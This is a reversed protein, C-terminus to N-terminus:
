KLLCPLYGTRCVCCKKLYIGRRNYIRNSSLIYLNWCKTHIPNQCVNCQYTTQSEYNIKDLCIVCDTHDVNKVLDPVVLEPIYQYVFFQISRISWFPVYTTKFYCFGFWKIHDCYKPTKFFFLFSNSQKFDPCNCKVIIKKSNSYNITIVNINNYCSYFSNIGNTFNGQNENTFNGQNENTFNGNIENYPYNIIDCKINKKCADHSTDILYM